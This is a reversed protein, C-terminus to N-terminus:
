AAASPVAFHFAQVEDAPELVAVSMSKFAARAAPMVGAGIYLQIGVSVSVAPRVAGPRDRLSRDFRQGRVASEAFALPLHRSM